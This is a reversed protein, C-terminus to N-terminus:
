QSTIESLLPCAFFEDQAAEFRRVTVPAGMWFGQYAEFVRRAISVGREGFREWFQALIEDAHSNPLQPGHLRAIEEGIFYALDARSWEGAPTAALAAVRPSVGTVTLTSTAQPSAQTLTATGQM